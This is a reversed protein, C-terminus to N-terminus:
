VEDGALEWMDDEDLIVEDFIGESIEYEYGGYNQRMYEEIFEEDDMNNPRDCKQNIAFTIVQGDEMHVLYDKHNEM